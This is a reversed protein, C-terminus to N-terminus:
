QQRMLQERLEHLQQGHEEQDHLIRRLQDHQHILMNSQKEIIGTQKVTQDLLRVLLSYVDGNSADWISPSSSSLTFSRSLNNFSMDSDVDDDAGGDVETGVDDDVGCDVETGVGDGVGDDVVSGVGDGVGDDVVTGVDAGVGGSIGTSVGDCEGGVIETGVDISTCLNKEICAVVGSVVSVDVGTGVEDGVGGDNETDVEINTCINKEGVVKTVVSESSSSVDNPVFVIPSLDKKDCLEFLSRRVRKETPNYIELAAGKDQVTEMIELLHTSRWSDIARQSGQAMIKNNTNYLTIHVKLNTPLRIALKMEVLAGKRDYVPKTIDDQAYFGLLSSSVARFEVHNLQAVVCQGGSKLQIDRFAMRLKRKVARETNLSYERVEADINRKSIM